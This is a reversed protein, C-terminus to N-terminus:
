FEGYVSTYRNKNYDDIIRGLIERAKELYSKAKEHENIREYCSGVNFYSVVTDLHEEGFVQQRIKLAKTMYELGKEYNGLKEYSYGLNNYSAATDPHNEGLVQQRIKLAKEMYELGKAPNGINEFFDGIKNYSAATDAHEEGLIRRRIKLAKELYAPEKEPDGIRECWRGLLTRDFWGTLLIDCGLKYFDGYTDDQPQNYDHVILLVKQKRCVSAIRQLKAQYQVHEPISTEMLIIADKASSASVEMIIDYNYKNNEAYAKALTSKGIGGIGQIYVIRSRKESNWQDNFLREIMLIQDDLGYVPDENERFNYKLLDKVEAKKGNQEASLDPSVNVTQPPTKSEEVEVKSDKNAFENAIYKEILERSMANRLMAGMILLSLACALFWDKDETDTSKVYKNLLEKLHDELTNVAEANNEYLDDPKPKKNYQISFSIINDYFGPFPMRRQQPFTM